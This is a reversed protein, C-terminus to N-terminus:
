RNPFLRFRIFSVLVARAFYESDTGSHATRRMKHVNLLCLSCSFIPIWTHEPRLCGPALRFADFVRGNSASDCKRDAFQPERACSQESRSELWCDGHEEVPHDHMSERHGIFERLSVTRSAGPLTVDGEGILILFRSRRIQPGHSNALSPHGM